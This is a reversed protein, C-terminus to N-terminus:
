KLPRCPSWPSCRGTCPEPGSDRVHRSRSSRIRTRIGCVGGLGANRRQWQLTPPAMFLCALRRRRRGTRDTRLRARNPANDIGAKAASGTHRSVFPLGLGMFNQQSIRQRWLSRKTIDGANGHFSRRHHGSHLFAAALTFCAKEDHCSRLRWMHCDECGRPSAKM